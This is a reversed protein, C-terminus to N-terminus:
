ESSPEPTPGHGPRPGPGQHDHYREEEDALVSRKDAEGRKGDADPLVIGARRLTSPRLRITQSAAAALDTSSSNLMDIEAQTEADDDGDNQVAVGHDENNDRDMPELHEDPVDAARDDGSPRREGLQDPDPEGPGTLDVAPDTPGRDGPGPDIAPSTPTLDITPRDSDTLDIEPPPAPSRHAATPLARSVSRLDRPGLPGPRTTTPPAVQGGVATPQDALVTRLDSSPASIASALWYAVTLLAVGAVAVVVVAWSVDPRPPAVSALLAGFDANAPGNRGNTLGMFGLLLRVSAGLATLTLATTLLARPRPKLPRDGRSTITIALPLLAAATLLVPELAFEAQPPNAFRVAALALVAPIPWRVLDILLRGIRDVMPASVGTVAGYVAAVVTALMAPLLGAMVTPGAAVVLREIMSRGTYDTGLWPGGFTPATEPLAVPSLVPDRTYGVVIVVALVVVVALLPWTAESVRTPRNADDSWADKATEPFLEALFAMLAAGAALIFVVDLVPVLSGRGLEEVLLSFLGANGGTLEAAAVSLSLVVTPLWLNVPGILAFGNEATLGAVDLGGVERRRGGALQAWFVPTLALGVAGASQPVFEVDPQSNAMAPWLLPVVLVGPIALAMIPGSLAGLLKAPGSVLMLASAFAALVLGIGIGSVALLLTRLTPDLLDPAASAADSLWRDYSPIGDGNITPPRFEDSGVPRLRGRDTGTALVHATATTGFFIAAARLLAYALRWPISLSRDANRM